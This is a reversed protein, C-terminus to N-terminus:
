VAMQLARATQALATERAVDAWDSVGAPPLCVETHLGQRTWWWSAYDACVEGTEGNDAFIVLHRVGPPIWITPPREKRWQPAAGEEKTWWHAPMGLRATGLTVWVPVRYTTMASWGTEIGEALGLYDSAPGLRVCGDFLEGRTKKHAGAIRSGKPSGGFEDIIWKDELWIRQVATIRGDSTKSAAVLAPREGHTRDCYLGPHERISPPINKTSLYRSTFYLEVGGRKTASAEAFQRRAEAIDQDRQARKREPSMEVARRGTTPLAGLEICSEAFSLNEIRMLWAIADGHAGCGFCHFFGKEPIVYFSPTKENHFPCLGAFERGKRKLAVKRGILDDLAIRSRLAALEDPAIM